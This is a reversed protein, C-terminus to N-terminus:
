KNCQTAIIALNDGISVFFAALLAIKDQNLGKSIAIAYTSALYTLECGSKNFFSNM